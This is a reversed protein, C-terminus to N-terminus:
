EREARRKWVRLRRWKLLECAFCGCGGGGHGGLKRGDPVVLGMQGEELGDHGLRRGRRGLPLRNQTSYGLLAVIVGRTGGHLKCGGRREFGKPEQKKEGPAQGM